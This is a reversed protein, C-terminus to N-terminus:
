TEHRKDRPEGSRKADLYWGPANEAEAKRSVRRCAGGVGGGREARSRWAKRIAVGPLISESQAKAVCM